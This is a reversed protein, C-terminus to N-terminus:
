ETTAETGKGSLIASIQHAFLGGEGGVLRQAVLGGPVFVVKARVADAIGMTALLVSLPPSPCCPLTWPRALM